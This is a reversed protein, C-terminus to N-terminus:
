SLANRRESPKRLAAFTQLARHIVERRLRMVATSHATAPLVAAVPSAVAIVEAGAKAQGPGYTVTAASPLPSKVLTWAATSATGDPLAPGNVM